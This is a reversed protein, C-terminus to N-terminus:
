AFFAHRRVQEPLESREFLPRDINAGLKLGLSRLEPVVDGLGAAVFPCLMRAQTLGLSGLCLRNFSVHGIEDIIVDTLREEVADRVVPLDRLVERAVRLLDLFYITGLLEAVLVIPRSMTHSVGAMAGILARLSARPRYPATVTMGYLSSASLLIKTHYDEEITLILELDDEERLVRAMLPEIMRQVGYAEAANIKVLALLLLMERSMERRPDYRAYQEDFLDRDLERPTSTPTLYRHMGEERRSLTRREVDVAGDRAELFSRYALRQERRADVPLSTFVSNM